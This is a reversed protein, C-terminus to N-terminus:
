LPNADHLRRSDRDLVRVEVPPIIGLEEHRHMFPGGTLWHICGDLTYLRRKWATCVGGLQRNHELITTRFGNGPAYCATSLGALGGGIIVVHPVSM